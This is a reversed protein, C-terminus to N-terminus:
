DACTELWQVLQDSDFPWGLEKKSTNHRLVPIREGYLEVWQESQSIECEQWQQGEPGLRETVLAKALECLHCGSTSLLIFPTM